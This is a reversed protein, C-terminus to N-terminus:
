RVDVAIIGVCGGVGSVYLVAKTIDVVDFTYSSTLIDVGSNVYYYSASDGWDIGRPKGVKVSKTENVFTPETVIYVTSGQPAALSVPQCLSGLIWPCLVVSFYGTSISVTHNAGVSVPQYYRYGCGSTASWSKTVSDVTLTPASDAYAEVFLVANNLQGLATKRSSVNVSVSGAAQLAAASFDLLKVTGLSFQSLTITGGAPTRGEVQIDYTGAALYALGGWPATNQYLAGQRAYAYLSGIKVRLDSANTANSTALFKFIVMSAASLTINGYDKILAWTTSNTQYSADDKILNTEQSLDRVQESFLM